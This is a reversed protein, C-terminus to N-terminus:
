NDSIRFWGSVKKTARSILSRPETTEHVESEAVPLEAFKQEAARSAKDAGAQRIERVDDEIQYTMLKGRVEYLEDKLREVESLLHSSQDQELRLEESRANLRQKYRDRQQTMKTLKETISAGISKLGVIERQYYDNSRQLSDIARKADTLAELVEETQDRSQKQATELEEIKMEYQKRERDRRKLEQHSTLSTERAQQAQEELSAKETKLHAVQDRALDLLEMREFLQTRWMSSEQELKSKEAKVTLLEEALRLCDDQIEEVQRKYGLKEHELRDFRTKLRELKCQAIRERNQAKKLMAETSRGKVSDKTM